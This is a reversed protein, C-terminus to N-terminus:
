DGGFRRIVIWVVIAIVAIFIYLAYFPAFM